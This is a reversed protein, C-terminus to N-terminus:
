NSGKLKKKIGDTVVIVIENKLLINIGLYTVVGALVSVFLSLFHNDFIQSTIWVIVTMSISSISLSVMFRKSVDLKVLKLVYPLLPINVILESIVSAIAAGNQAFRPILISNLIINVIAAASYTLFLYKENGSSIMVQYCLIDGISKIFVLLSLIKVVTTAPIFADGFMVPTLDEAVLILGICCPLSFFFALKLGISVFKNYQTRDTEFYYSIRPLFIASIATTLTFVLIVMKHANNYYGVVQEECSNSLMTIDVMSYLQSAILCVALIFVPKMHKKFQLGHTVFKVYKKAHIINFVYNGGTALCNILAYIIYDQTDKVFIFLMVISVAKIITSRVAIYVYEEEGQYLWDINIFNFLILSGCVAYLSLENNYLRGIMIYYVIACAATCVFNILFLESFTRNTKNQDNRHKAIERVGYTPIGLAAVTTFYAVINQAASVKGVGEPLLVRALYTASILPFIANLIKYAMNFAANKALSKKM